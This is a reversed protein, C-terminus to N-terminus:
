HESTNQVLGNILRLHQDFAGRLELLAQQTLDREARLREIETRLREQKRAYENEITELHQAHEDRTFSLRANLDQIQQQLAAINPQDSAARQTLQQSLRESQKRFEECRDQLREITEQQTQEVDRSVECEEQLRRITQLHTAEMDRLADREKEHERLRARLDDHAQANLQFLALERRLALITQDRRRLKRHLERLADDQPSDSPPSLDDASQLSPPPSLISDDVTMEEIGIDGLSDMDNIDGLSELESLDSLADASLDDDLHPSDPNSLSLDEVDVIELSPPDNSTSSTIEDSNALSDIQLNLSNNPMQSPKPSTM